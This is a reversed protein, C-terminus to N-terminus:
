IAYNYWKEVLYLFFYKKIKGNGFTFFPITKANINFQIFLDGGMYSIYFFQPSFAGCPSVICCRYFLLSWGVWYKKKIIFLNKHQFLNYNKIKPMTKATNNSQLIRRMLYQM